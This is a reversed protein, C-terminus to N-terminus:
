NAVIFVMCNIFIILLFSCTIFIRCISHVFVFWAWVIRNVPCHGNHCMWKKSSSNTSFPSDLLSLARYEEAQTNLHHASNQSDNPLLSFDKCWFGKRFGVLCYIFFSITKIDINKRFYKLTLNPWWHFAGIWWIPAAAHKHCWFWLLHIRYQIEVCFWCVKDVNTYSSYKWTSVDKNEM